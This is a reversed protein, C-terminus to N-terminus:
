EGPTEKELFFDRREQLAGPTIRFLVLYGSLDGEIAARIRCPGAPLDAGLPIFFRQGEDTTEALNGLVPIPLGQVPQLDYLHDTLTLGTHPGPAAATPREVTVRVRTRETRGHPVFLRASIVEDGASVKVYPFALESAFRIALRRTLSLGEGPGAYNIFLRVPRSPVARVRRPGLRIPPLLFEGRAEQTRVEHHLEGDVFVQVSLPGPTESLCVLTPPLEQRADPSQFALTTETNAPLERYVTPLAEVRNPSGEDRPVLIERAQWPGEPRFEEWLYRGALIDPNDEPPRVALTVVPAREDQVLRDFDRARLPFWAVQQDSNSGYSRYDEPVATRKVLAAARDFASVLVPAGPSALRVSAIGTPLMFYSTARESVRAGPWDPATEGYIPDYLSFPREVKLEGKQVIKGEADLLEYTVPVPPLPPAVAPSPAAGPPAAPAAPFPPMCLRRLDVALPAPAAGEHLVDFEVPLGERSLYTRLLTPEPTIETEGPLAGLTEESAAGGDPGHVPRPKGADSLFARMVSEQPAELELLGGAFTGEFRTGGSNWPASLASQQGPKRGYWRVPLAPNPGRPSTGDIPQFVLRVRGGPDPVPITARLDPSVRLGAPPTPQRVETGEIERLVYLERREYDDGEIGTPAQPSWQQMLLNVKEHESLLDATYVNGRAMMQKKEPTIRQWLNRIKHLSAPERTYVRAVVESLAPDKSALRLRLRAAKGSLDTLKIPVVKGDAPVLSTELYFSSTFLRGSKEDRFESVQTSLNYDHGLIVTGAADLVEYRIAYRWSPPPAHEAPSAAGAKAEGATATSPGGQQARAAAIAHPLLNGNTILRVVDQAPPLEFVLWRDSALKYTVAVASQAIKALRWDDVPTESPTLLRLPNGWRYGAAALGAAAVLWVGRISYVRM